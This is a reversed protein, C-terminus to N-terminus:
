DLALYETMKWPKTGQGQDQCYDPNVFDTYNRGVQKHESVLQFASFTSKVWSNTM